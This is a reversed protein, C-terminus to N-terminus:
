LAIVRLQPDVKTIDTPDSTVVRDGRRRACLAVHIDVVDSQGSRRAMEGIAYADREDLAVVDVRQRDKVLRSIRAARPGGRWAQALVGAPLTLTWERDLAIRLLARIRADGRELAILAGSDLTLGGVEARQKGM